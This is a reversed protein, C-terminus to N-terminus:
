VTQAGSKTITMGGGDVEVGGGKSGAEATSRSGAEKPARWQWGFRTHLKMVIVDIIVHRTLIYYHRVLFAV